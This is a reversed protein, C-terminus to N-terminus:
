GKNDGVRKLEGADGGVGRLAEEGGGEVIGVDGEGPVCGGAGGRKGDFTGVVVARGPRRDGRVDESGGVEVIGVGAFVGRVQEIAEAGLILESGGVGGFGGGRQGRM